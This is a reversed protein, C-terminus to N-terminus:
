AGEALERRYVKLWLGSGYWGAAFGLPAAALPAWWLERELRFYLAAVTLVLLVAGLGLAVWRARPPTTGLVAVGTQRVWDRYALAMCVVGAAIVVNNWPLGFVQSGPVTAVGLAYIGRLRWPKNLREGLAERSRRADELAQAADAHDYTMLPGESEM